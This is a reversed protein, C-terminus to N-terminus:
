IYIYIPILVQGFCVLIYSAISTKKLTRWFNLVTYIRFIMCEDLTWPLKCILYFNRRIINCTHLLPQCSLLITCFVKDRNPTWLKACFYYIRRFLIYCPVTTWTLSTTWPGRTKKHLLYASPLSSKKVVNKAFDIKINDICIIQKELIM